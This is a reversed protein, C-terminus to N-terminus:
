RTRKAWELDQRRVNREDDEGFKVWVFYENYSVIRGTIEGPEVRGYTKKLIVLRGIDKAQPFIM